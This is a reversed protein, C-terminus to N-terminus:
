RCCTARGLSETGHPHDWTGGEQWAPPLNLPSSAARALTTDWFLPGILGLLVVCLVISLGTLLKWNRWRRRQRATPEVDALTADRTQEIMVKV